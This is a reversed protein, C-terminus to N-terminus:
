SQILDSDQIRAIATEAVLLDSPRLVGRLLHVTEMYLHLSAKGRYEVILCDKPVAELGAAMRHYQTWPSDIGITNYVQGFFSNETRLLLGKQVAIM